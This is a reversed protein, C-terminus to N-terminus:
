GSITTGQHPKERKQRVKNPKRCTDGLLEEEIFYKCLSGPSALRWMKQGLTQRCHRAISFGGVYAREDGGRQKGEGRAWCWKRTQPQLPTRSEWGLRWHSALFLSYVMPQPVAAERGQPWFSTAAWYPFLLSISPLSVLWYKWFIIIACYETDCNSKPNQKNNTPRKSTSEWQSVNQSHLIRLFCKRYSDSNDTGM